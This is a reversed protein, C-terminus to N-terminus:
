SESDLLINQEVARKFRPWDNRPNVWISMPMYDWNPTVRWRTQYLNENHRVSIRGNRLEGKLLSLLLMPGNYFWRRGRKPPAIEPPMFGEATGEGIAYSKDRVLMSKYCVKFRWNAGKRTIGRFVSSPVRVGADEPDAYPVFPLNSGEMLYQVGGRLPIGTRYTWDNLLNVAVALDQRSSLRKLYVGRVNHGRYYDHGCSERFPGESFSKAVNVQFGLKHLIDVLRDYAERCVILDDGFVAWNGPVVAEYQLRPNDKIPIGQERYVARIVCSLLLTMFPFTFGNGMTSLMGLEVKLGYDPLVTSRCRLEELTDFVWGPLLQKCLGVSICDSASSLDLTAFNGDRSGIRALLRNIEPQIDLNVNWLQTLRDRLVGEVGLQFFMNLSPEVCIARDTNANKPVFTMKSSDVIRLPSDTQSARLSEGEEWTPFVGCYARYLYYLDTSTATLQKSSGLKAYFSQGDAGISSGPGTRAKELVTLYSDFLMTRDGGPEVKHFFQYLEQRIGGLLEDDSVNQPSWKWVSSLHNAELFTLAARATARENGDEWKKFLTRLLNHAAYQSHEPFPNGEALFPAVDLKILDHLAQPEKM